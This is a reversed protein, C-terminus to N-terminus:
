EQTQKGAIEAIKIDTLQKIEALKIAAQNKEYNIDDVTLLGIYAISVTTFSAILVTALKQWDPDLVFIAIVTTVIDTVATVIITWFRRSTLVSPKNM